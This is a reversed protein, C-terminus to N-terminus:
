LINNIALWEICESLNDNQILLATGIYIWILHTGIIGIIVLSARTGEAIIVSDEKIRRYINEYLDSIVCGIVFSPYGLALHFTLFALYGFLIIGGLITSTIIPYVYAGYGIITLLIIVITKIINKDLPKM